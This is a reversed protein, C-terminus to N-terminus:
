ERQKKTDALNEKNSVIVAGSKRAQSDNSQFLSGLMKAGQNSKSIKVGFLEFENRENILIKRM